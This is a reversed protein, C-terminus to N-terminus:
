NDACGSYCENVYECKQNWQCCTPGKYDKGGCQDNAEACDWNNECGGFWWPIQNKDGPKKNYPPCYYMCTSIDPPDTANAGCKSKLIDTINSDCEIPRVHVIPNNWTTWDIDSNVKELLKNPDSKLLKAVGFDFHIPAGALNTCVWNGDKDVCDSPPVWITDELNSDTYFRGFRLKKGWEKPPVNGSFNFTDTPNVDKAANCWQWNPGYSNRDECTDINVVKLTTEKKGNKLKAPNQQSDTQGQGSPIKWLPPEENDIVTLEFCKGCGAAGSSCNSVYKTGYLM